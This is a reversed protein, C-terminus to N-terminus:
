QRRRSKEHRRENREAAASETSTHVLKGTNRNVWVEKIKGRKTQIDFSYVQMGNETELEESRITGPVKKLAIARAQKLSVRKRQSAVNLKGGPETTTVATKASRDTRNSVAKVSTNATSMTVNMTVSASLPSTAFLIVSVFTLFAVKAVYNHTLKM